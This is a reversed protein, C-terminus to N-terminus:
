VGTSAPTEVLAPVKVPPEEKAPATLTKFQRGLSMVAGLWCLIVGLLIIAVIHASAAITAFIILLGQHIFSGASKGLRSGVGDIAAKGKLKSELSLPIFAMEKTADFLTFKSARSLCNQASGFLVVLALPSTGLAALVGLLSQGGFLFFFFGATAILLVAPTFLAGATWGYRRILQGSVLLSLFFSIVGTISTIQSMYANFDGPNPYLQRVQDKWIVEVLNIVINYALVIVAVSMLYKSRALYAFNERMSMKIKERKQSTMTEHEDHRLVHHTLYRYLALIAVGSVLVIGTLLIVSQHWGNEVIHLHTRLFQSSLFVSVQGANIAALNLGIAILGYFRKAEGLRTVENTFGWFLMSLIASSWLESMIYFSSFTWYRFMAILGKFGAPLHEQLYNATAHPHLVDRFPYLVFTFFAFFGLFITVMWYFVRERSLKNNLRSYLFTMLFAGPLIGWVKIFPIVEAGSSAATVLLADKMNRLINYNFGIFFAMLFLPLFKRLENSRIPWLYARWPSFSLSDQSMSGM